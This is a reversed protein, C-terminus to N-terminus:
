VEVLRREDFSWSNFWMYRFYDLCWEHFDPDESYFISNIDVEFKDKKRVRPFTICAQRENLVVAIIVSGVMRRKVRGQKLMEVFLSEKLLEKRRRPVIANQPLIYNFEFEKDGASKLRGVISEILDIPVEPVIAYVYKQSKSYIEKWKEITSVMGTICQSNSLSGIRAMFKRPLTSLIHYEFYDKNRSLFDLASIQQLVTQGFTTLLFMGETDRQLMGNETLRIINRRVEPMSSDLDKSLSALNRKGEALKFLIGLRQSSGLEFFTKATTGFPGDERLSEDDGVPEEDM